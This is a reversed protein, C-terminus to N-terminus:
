KKSSKDFHSLVNVVLVFAGMFLAIIGLYIFDGIIEMPISFTLCNEMNEM